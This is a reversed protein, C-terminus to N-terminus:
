KQTHLINKGIPLAQSFLLALLLILSGNCAVIPCPKAPVQWSLASHASPLSFAILAALFLAPVCAISTSLQLPSLPQCKENRQVCTCTSSKSNYFTVNQVHRNERNKSGNAHKKNHRIFKVM